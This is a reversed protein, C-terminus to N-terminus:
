RANAACRTRRLGAACGISTLFLLSSPEPVTAAVLSAQTVSDVVSAGEIPEENADLVTVSTLTATNAFDADFLAEFNGLDNNNTIELRTEVIFEFDVDIQPTEGEGLQTFDFPVMFSEFQLNAASVDSIFNGDQASPAHIFTDPILLDETPRITAVSLADIVTADGPGTADLFLSSTGTVAWNFSVYGVDTDGLGNIDALTQYTGAARTGITVRTWETSPFDGPGGVGTDSDPAEGGGGGIPGGGGPEPSFGPIFRSVAARFGSRVGILGVRDPRISGTFQYTGLDAEVRENLEIPDDGIILGSGGVEDVSYSVQVAYLDPAGMSFLAVALCVIRSVTM